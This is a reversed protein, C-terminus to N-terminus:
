CPWWGGSSPEVVRSGGWGVTAVDMGLRQAEHGNGWFIMGSPFSKKNIFPKIFPPLFFATKCSPSKYVGKSSHIIEKTLYPYTFFSLSNLFLPLFFPM